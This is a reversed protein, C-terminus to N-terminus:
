SLGSGSIVYTDAAVCLITALGRQALTRNVTSADAANYCTVASVDITINGASNNWITVADGIAFIGAGLTVQGTASVHKGADTDALTVTGTQGAPINNPGSFRTATVIGAFEASGDVGLAIKNDSSTGNGNQQIILGKGSTRNSFVYGDSHITVTNNALATTGGFIGTGSFTADGDPKVYWTPTSNDDSSNGMICFSDAAPRYNIWTFASYNTGTAKIRGDNVLSVKLDGNPQAGAGVNGTIDIDGTFKVTNGSRPNINNSLLTSM